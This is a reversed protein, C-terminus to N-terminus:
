LGPVAGEGSGVQQETQPFPVGVRYHQSADLCVVADGLRGGVGEADDVDGAGGCRPGPLPLRLGSM